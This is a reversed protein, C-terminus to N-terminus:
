APGDRSAAPQAVRSDRGLAVRGWLRVRLRELGASPSLQEIVFSPVLGSLVVGLYLSRVDNRFRLFRYEGCGQHPM